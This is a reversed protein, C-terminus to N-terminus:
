LSTQSTHIQLHDHHSIQSLTALRLTIKIYLYLSQTRSDTLAYNIVPMIVLM